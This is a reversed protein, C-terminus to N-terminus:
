FILRKVQGAFSRWLYPRHIVVPVLAWLNKLSAPEFFLYHSLYLNRMAAKHSPSDAFLTLVKEREAFYRESALSSYNNSHRRYYALPANIFGIKQHRAIKLWLLWDEINVAEDYGGAAEVASAQVMAGITFIFNGKLLADFVGNAPPAAVQIPEVKKLDDWYTYGSSYVMGAEPHQELYEVKCQLSNDTLWDDASIFVLYRGMAKRRLRNLNVPITAGVTNAEVSVPFSSAAALRRATVVSDDTSANDLFLVEFDRFTQRELSLFLDPLYASHNWCLVLISVTSM